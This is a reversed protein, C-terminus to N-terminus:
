TVLMSRKVAGTGTRPQDGCGQRAPLPSTCRPQSGGADQMRGGDRSFVKARGLLLSQQKFLFSLCLGGESLGLAGAPLAGSNRASQEGGDGGRQGGFRLLVGPMGLSRGGALGGGGPSSCPAPMGEPVWLDGHGGRTSARWSCAPSMERPRPWTRNVRLLYTELALAWGAQWGGWPAPSRSESYLLM